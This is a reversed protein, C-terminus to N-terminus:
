SGHSTWFKPPRGELPTSQEPFHGVTHKHYVKMTRFHDSGEDGKNDCKWKEQPKGGSKAALYYKIEWEAKKWKKLLTM